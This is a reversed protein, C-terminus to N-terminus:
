QLNNFIQQLLRHLIKVENPKMAVTAKDNATRAMPILSEKMKRGKSTLHIRYSRRDEEHKKRVVLERKEMGDLIRTLNTKDKFLRDALESQTQSDKQWLSMLVAFQEPTVDHGNSKFLRSLENKLLVAARNLLFGLSSELDFEHTM